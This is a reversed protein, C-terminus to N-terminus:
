SARATEPSRLALLSQFTVGELGKAAALDILKPWHDVAISNRAKMVRVHSDAVGLADSVAQVGGCEDILQSFTNM